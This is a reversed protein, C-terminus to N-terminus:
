DCGGEQFITMWADAVKNDNCHEDKVANFTCMKPSAEYLASTMDQDLLNYYNRKWQLNIWNWRKNRFDRMCVSM